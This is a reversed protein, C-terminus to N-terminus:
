QETAPASPPAAAAATATATAQRVFEELPVLEGRAFFVAAKTGDLTGDERYRRYHEPDVEPVNQLEMRVRATSKSPVLAVEWTAEGSADKDTADVDGFQMHFAHEGHQRLDLPLQERSQVRVVAAVRRGHGPEGPKLARLEANYARLCACLAAFVVSELAARCEREILGPLEADSFCVLKHSPWHKTQCDRSCYWTVTCKKCYKTADKGCSACPDPTMTPKQRTVIQKAHDAHQPLVPIPTNMMQPNLRGSREALALV